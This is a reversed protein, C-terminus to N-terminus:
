SRSGCEARASAGGPAPMTSPLTMGYRGAASSCFFFFKAARSVRRDAGSTSSARCAARCRSDRATGSRGARDRDSARTGTRGTPACWECWRCAADRFDGVVLEPEAIRAAVPFAVRQDDVDRVEVVLGPEIAGAIEVARLQVHDLAPLKEIGVGDLVLRRELIGFTNLRGHLM